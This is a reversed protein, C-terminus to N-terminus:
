YFTYKSHYGYQRPYFNTYFYGKEELKNRCEEPINKLYKVIEDYRKIRIKEIDEESLIKRTTVDNVYLNFIELLKEPLSHYNFFITMNTQFYNRVFKKKNLFHDYSKEYTVSNYYEIEFYVTPQHGYSLSGEQPLLYDINNNIFLKLNNTKSEKYYKDFMDVLTTDLVCYYHNIKHTSGIAFNRISFTPFACVDKDRIVTKLPLIFLSWKYSITDMNFIKVIYADNNNGYSNMNWYNMDWDFCEIKGLHEICNYISYSILSDLKEQCFLNYNIFVFILISLIYKKMNKYTM